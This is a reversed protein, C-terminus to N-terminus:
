DLPHQRKGRCLGASAATQRLVLWRINANAKSVFWRIHLRGM